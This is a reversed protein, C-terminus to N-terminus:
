MIWVALERTFQVLEDHNPYAIVKSATVLSVMEEAASNMCAQSIVLLVRNTLATSLFSSFCSDALLWRLRAETCPLVICSVSHCNSLAQSLTIDPRLIMGHAGSSERSDLGVVQVKIGARRLEAVVITTPVEDFKKGWVVYTLPQRIPMNSAKM